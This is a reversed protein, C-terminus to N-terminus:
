AGRSELSKITELLQSRKARLGELALQEKRLSEQLNNISRECDAISGDIGLALGDGAVARKLVEIAAKNKRSKKVGALAEAAFMKGPRETQDYTPSIIEPFNGLHSAVMDARDPDAGDKSWERTGHTHKYNDGFARKFATEVIDAVKKYRVKDFKVLTARFKTGEFFLTIGTPRATRTMTKTAM